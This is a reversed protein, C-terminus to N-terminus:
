RNTTTTPNTRGLDHLDPRRRLGALGLLGLLGWDFSGDRDRENRVATTSTATGPVAVSTATGTTAGTTGTGTTQAAVPLACALGLVLALLSTRVAGTNEYNMMNVRQYFDM